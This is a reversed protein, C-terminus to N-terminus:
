SPGSPKPKDGAFLEPIVSAGGNAQAVAALGVLEGAFLGFSHDKKGEGIAIEAFFDISNLRERMAETAAKDASEKEGRGVWEAASIAGAETVRILDLHFNKM